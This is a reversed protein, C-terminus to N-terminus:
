VGLGCAVVSVSIQGHLEDDTAAGWVIEADPHAQEQIINAAEEIEMLSLDQGGTINILIGRAGQLSQNDLLRNTTAATAAEIARNEGSATATGMLSRGVKGDVKSSMLITRVDGFDLNVLGPKIILDTITRVGKTLVNDAAKFADAFSFNKEEQAIEVLRQNQIVILTDVCQQLSELGSFAQRSRVPGEFGFPCTVVGVTLIGAEQLGKAIVIM